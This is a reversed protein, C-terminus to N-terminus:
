INTGTRLRLEQIQKMLDAIIAKDTVNLDPQEQRRAASAVAERAERM